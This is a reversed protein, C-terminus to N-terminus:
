YNKDRKRKKGSRTRKVAPISYRDNNFMMAYRVTTSSIEPTVTCPAFPIAIFDICDEHHHIIGLTKKPNLLLTGAPFNCNIALTTALHM